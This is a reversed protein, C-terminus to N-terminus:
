EKEKIYCSSLIGLFVFYYVTTNHMTNGFFASVCYAFVLIGAGMIWEPLSKVRKICHIFITILAGLYFILAPIGLFAAYQIYENHPRDNLCGDGFYKNGLGEPGYGLVPKETIYKIGYKWLKIRGSGAEDDSTINGADKYTVSMNAVVRGNVFNMCASVLIVIGMAALARVFYKKGRFAFLVCGFLGGFLVALYCGFTDNVILSWINFALTIGAVSRLAKNKEVVVLVVLCMIGMTMLYAFHNTNNYIGSYEMCYKFNRQRSEYFPKFIKFYQIVTIISLSSVSYAMIRFLLLRYKKSTVARGCVYMAAYVFYTLLGDKRYLTGYMALYRDEASLSSIVAWVLMLLLFVDWIHNKILGKFDFKERGYFASLVYFIAFIEGAGGVVYYLNIYLNFYASPVILRYAGEVVLLIIMTSLIFFGCKEYFGDPVKEYIEKFGFDEKKEKNKSM